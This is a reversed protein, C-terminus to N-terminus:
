LLFQIQAGGVIFQNVLNPPLLWDLRNPDSANRECILDRKFQDIDEVLGMTEWQAFKAIAEAKGIKPTIIAQGPGVRVGDSALKHRPYKTQITVRFDYRLFSTTFLTTVDLYATDPAGVSNTQYTTIAREILMGSNSGDAKATAIGDFLLNNREQLSFQEGVAPVLIDILPLTQLPRAPDQQGSKAAQGAYAAAYEWGPNPASMAPGMISSHKSNRSNGLTTLNGLSDLSATMAVGDIQRIPGWRDLLEAEIKSLCSADLWPHVIVNYQSDPLAAMLNTLDPNQAGSAMATITAAVGAPLKEELQYNLRIDIKNGVLGKNKATVDCEYANTGNVAATVYSLPTAQILAVMAAAIQTATQGSTVGLSFLRGGIYLSVVGDATAPGTFSIKGTAAVGSAHDNVAIAHVETVKDNKLYKDLMAHLQSGAGFYERAQAESSIIQLTLEAKTGASLRQGVVLTKYKQVSPGQQAKSSDFEVFVFPVRANAPVDNFSISM